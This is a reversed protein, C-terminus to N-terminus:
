YRGENRLRAEATVTEAQLANMAWAPRAALVGGIGLILRRSLPM